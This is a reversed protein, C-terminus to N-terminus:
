RRQRKIVLFAVGSIIIVTAGIWIWPFSEPEPESTEVVVPASPTLSGPLDQKRISSLVEGDQSISMLKVDESPIQPEFDPGLKQILTDRASAFGTRGQSDLEKLQSQIKESGWHASGAFAGEANEWPDVLDHLLSLMLAKKFKLREARSLYHDKDNTFLAEIESAMEHNDAPYYGLEVYEIELYKSVSYEYIVADRDPGFQYGRFWTLGDETAGLHLTSASGLSGVKELEGSEGSRYVNWASGVVTWRLIVENM